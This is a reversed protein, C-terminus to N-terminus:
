AMEAKAMAIKAKITEQAIEAKEKTLEAVKKDVAAKQEPSM